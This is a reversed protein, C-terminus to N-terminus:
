SVYNSLPAPPSLPSNSRRSHVLLYAFRGSHKSSPAPANGRNVLSSQASTGFEKRKNGPAPTACNNNTEDVQGTAYAATVEGTLRTTAPEIGARPAYGRYSLPLAGIGCGITGRGIVKRFIRIFAHNLHASRIHFVSRRNAARVKALAACPPM